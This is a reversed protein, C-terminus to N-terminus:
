QGLFTEVTYAGDGLFRLTVAGDHATTYLPVDGALQAVHAERSANANTQLLIQADVRSLVEATVASKSGHHPLLFVDAPALAYPAYESPIDGPLLLTVGAIEAQLVLCVDNADHQAAIRGALPWLVRIRGSPLAIEDGRSLCILETGAAELAELLPRMEEDILPVGAEAPLYCKEVPVGQELLAAGGGGHDTHLHTIILAEVGQRHQHLYGALAEGDEGTDIVVTMDRDQLIAANGDGVDLLTFTTDWQPLPLLILAILLAGTLLLKRRHPKWRRPLLGASSALVLAWGIFTLGDAQRTWLSTFPLKSLLLVLDLLRQTLWSAAAGLLERLGPVGLSFLTAWYLLILGGALGIVFINLFLGLLPLEGFWYLQPFLVGLQAAVSACFAEWTKQAAPHTFGRLRRLRPYVLTLGLMAGYTLQFSPSLLQTPNFILQVLATASLLHLPLIQRHRLKMWAHWLILVSARVVPANGGSLLCYGALVLADAAMRGRRGVPFPRLLWHLMAALVGVHFGSVCLIHAIGLERFAQKESHPIYDQTGLLMAAAYAGTHEGMVDFLGLMLKHRLAAATGRLSFGGKAQQLEDAGYVGFRIGRQLLYAKFDFGGPNTRGGPHYVEATLQVRAGPQLWDPPLEGEDLYYTWYADRQPTGNLTVDTLVTQVQGGAEWHVEQVVTGTVTYSGEPPMPPHHAQWSLLAGLAVIVAAGAARKLRGQGLLCALGALAALVLLWAWASAVSGLLIGCSFFLTGMPLLWANLTSSRRPVSNM